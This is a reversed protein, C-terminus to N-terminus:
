NLDPSLQYGATYWVATYWLIGGPLYSDPLWEWKLEIHPRPCHSVQYHLLHSLLFVAPLSKGPPVPTKCSFSKQALRPFLSGPKAEGLSPAFDVVGCGHGEGECSELGPNGVQLVSLGLSPLPFFSPVPNCSSEPRPTHYPSPAPISLARASTVDDWAVKLVSRQGRPASLLRLSLKRPFLRLFEPFGFLLPLFSGLRGARIKQGWRPEWGKSEPREAGGRRRWGQGGLGCKQRLGSVGRLSVTGEREQALDRTPRPLHPAPAGPGAPSRRGDAPDGTGWGAALRFRDPDWSEQGEGRQELASDPGDPAEGCRGGWGGVAASGSRTFGRSPTSIGTGNTKSLFGWAGSDRQADRERWRAAVDRLNLPSPGSFPSFTRRGTKKGTGDKGSVRVDM